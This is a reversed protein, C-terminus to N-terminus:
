DGIKKKFNPMSSADDARVYRKEDGTATVNEYVGQDRRVLKTFGKSKLDANGAPRHLSPAYLLREVRADPPTEGPNLGACACLESWTELSEKMGHFVEVSTGNAECFYNYIPVARSQVVASGEPAGFTSPSEVSAGRCDNM